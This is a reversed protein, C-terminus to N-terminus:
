FSLVHRRFVWLFEVMIMIRYQSQLMPSGACEKHEEGIGLICGQGSVTSM